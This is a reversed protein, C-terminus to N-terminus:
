GALAESLLALRIGTKHRRVRDRVEETVLRAPGVLLKGDKWSVKLRERRLGELVHRGVDELAVNQLVLDVAGAVHCEEAYKEEGLALLAARMLDRYMVADRECLDPCAQAFQVLYSFLHAMAEHNPPQTSCDCM